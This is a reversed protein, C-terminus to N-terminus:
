LINYGIGINAGITKNLLQGSDFSLALNMRLNKYPISIKQLMCFQHSNLKESYNGLNKSFLIQTTFKVNQLNSYITANLSTGRNNLLTKRSHLDTKIQNFPIILPTGIVQGKYIWGDKYLSNYFYNDRGRLEPIWEFLEGGQNKTNLYELCIKSLYGNQKSISIGYLGDAINNLYFLSGDEYFSQRYIFINLKAVALQLGMDITGLHNGARNTAENGPIGNPNNFANGNKNLSVGSSVKLFTQFDRGFKSITQKTIDDYFPMTPLGGWQVQHNFGGILHVKWSPKGIRAYFSKQHLWVNQVSDGKGFWGHAFNGKIALLGNKTIPTYNPISIEIKPMPLANGSWIYSGMTGLTDVLGQIERRRGGYLQFAGYRMKLHAVPLLVQNVRGYNLHTEIGYGYDFRKLKKNITYLSDYEQQINLNLFGIGSKLPILGYQNSRLLFPTTIDSSVLGGISGQINTKQLFKQSYTTGCALFLLYATIYIKSKLDIEQSTKLKCIGASNM